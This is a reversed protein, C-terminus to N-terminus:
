LISADNIAKITGQTDGCLDGCLNQDLAYLYIGAVNAGRLACIMTYWYRYRQETTMANFATIRPDTLNADIGYESIVIKKGPVGCGAMVNRVMSVGSWGTIINTTDNALWCGYPHWCVADIIDRGRTIQGALLFQRMTEGGMFGATWLQVTPASLKLQSRAAIGMEVLDIAFGWFFSKQDALGTFQPENGLQIALIRGPYRNTVEYCIDRVPGQLAAGGGGPHRYADFVAADSPRKLAFVPTGYLPWVFSKGPHAAVIADFRTFDYKGLSPNIDCWALGCDHLRVCDHALGVPPPSAPYESDGLPVRHCHIGIIFKDNM